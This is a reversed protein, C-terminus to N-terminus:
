IKHTPFRYSKAEKSSVKIGYGIFDDVVLMETPILYVLSDSSSLDGKLKYKNIIEGAGYLGDDEIITFVDNTFIDNTLWEMVALKEMTYEWMRPKGIVINNEIVTLYWTIHNGDPFTISIKHRARGIILNVTINEKDLDKYKTYDNELKKRQNYHINKSQM